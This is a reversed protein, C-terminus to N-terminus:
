GGLIATLLDGLTAPQQQAPTPSPSPSAPSTPTPSSPTSPSSPRSSPSRTPESAPRDTGGAGATGRPAPTTPDPSEATPQDAATPADDPTASPEPEQSEVIPAPEEDVIPAGAVAAGQEGSGTLAVIAVTGAALMVMVLSAAVLSVTRIRM